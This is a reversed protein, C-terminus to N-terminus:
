VVVYSLYQGDFPAEFYVGNLPCVNDEVKIKQQYQRLAFPHCEKEGDKSVNDERKENSGKRM